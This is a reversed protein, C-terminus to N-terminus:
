DIDGDKQKAEKLKRLEKEKALLEKSLQPNYKRYEESKVLREYSKCEVDEIFGDCNVKIEQYHGIYLSDSPGCNVMVSRGDRFHLIKWGDIGDTRKDTDEIKELIGKIIQAKVPNKKCGVVFLLLVLSLLILSKSKM